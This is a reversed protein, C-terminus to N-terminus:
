GHAVLVRLIRRAGDRAEDETLVLGGFNDVYPMVARRRTGGIVVGPEKDAVIEEPAFGADIVARILMRECTHLFWAWGMPLVVLCPVM